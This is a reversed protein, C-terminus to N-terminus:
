RALKELVPDKITSRATSQTLARQVSSGRAMDALQFAQAILQKEQQPNQKAEAFLVGMYSEVLISFRKQFKLSITQNEADNRTQDILVPMASAFHEKAEKSRGQEE